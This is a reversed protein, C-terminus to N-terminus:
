LRIGGRHCHRGVNVAKTRAATRAFIAKDKRSNTSKRKM